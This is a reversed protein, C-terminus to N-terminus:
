RVVAKLKKYRAEVRDPTSRGQFLLDLERLYWDIRHHKCQIYKAKNKIVTMIM